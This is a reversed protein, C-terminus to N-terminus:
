NELTLITPDSLGVLARGPEMWSAHTPCKFNEKKKKTDIQLTWPFHRAADIEWYKAQPEAKGRKATMWGRDYAVTSSCGFQLWISSCNSPMQDIDRNTM